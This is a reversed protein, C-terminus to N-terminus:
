EQVTEEGSAAQENVFKEAQKLNDLLIEQQTKRLSKVGDWASRLREELSESYTPAQKFLTFFLEGNKDMMSNWTSMGIEYNARATQVIPRLAQVRMGNGQGWSANAALDKWPEWSREMMKRTEEFVNEM